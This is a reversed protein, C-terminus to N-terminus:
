SNLGCSKLNNLASQVSKAIFKAFYSEFSFKVEQNQLFAEWGGYKTYYNKNYYNVYYDKKLRESVIFTNTCRSNSNITTTALTVLYYPPRTTPQIINNLYPNSNQNQSSSPNNKLNYNKDDLIFSDGPDNSDNYRPSNGNIKNLLNGLVGGQSSPVSVNCLDGSCGAPIPGDVKCAVKNGNELTYNIIYDGKPTNNKTANAAPLGEAFERTTQIQGHGFIRNSPIGYAIQIANGLKVATELQKAGTGKESCVLSIGISSNNDYNIVGRNNRSDVHNTRKYMPAAQVIKGSQDIYFHYGFIGQRGSDYNQGYSVAKEISACNGPWHFVILNFPKPNASAAAGYQVSSKGKYDVEISTDNQEFSTVSKCDKGFLDQNNAFTFNIAFLSLFISLFVNRLM